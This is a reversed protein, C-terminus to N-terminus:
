KDLLNKLKQFDSIFQQKIKPFRLAASPHFTFFYTRNNETIAIGHKRTVPEKRGLAGLAAVSGLLAVIKPDIVELQKLLHTRGHQIQSKKPTGHVPLYKVPSTIFVEDERLGIARIQERLFQGSRGVFPRGTKSETVGPAEGIFVVNADQDGEGPVPLGSADKKCLACNKIKDAIKSLATAKDM